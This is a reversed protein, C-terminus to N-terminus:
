IHLHNVDEIAENELKVPDERITNQTNKTRIAKTKSRKTKLGALRSATALSRVKEEAHQYRHSLPAIDYAFDLEHLQSLFTWEIGTRSSETTTARMVWDVVLLFHMPSLICGQGVGTKM